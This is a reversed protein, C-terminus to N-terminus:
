EVERKRRRGKEREGRASLDRKGGRFTCVQGEGVRMCLAVFTRALGSPRLHVRIVRPSAVPISSLFLFHVLCFSFPLSPSLSLLPLSAVLVYNARQLESM